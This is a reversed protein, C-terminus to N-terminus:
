ERPVHELEVKGHSWGLDDCILASLEGDPRPITAPPMEGAKQEAGRSRHQM